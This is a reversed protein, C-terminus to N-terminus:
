YSPLIDWHQFLLLLEKLCVKFEIHQAGSIALWHYWQVESVDSNKEHSSTNVSTKRLM